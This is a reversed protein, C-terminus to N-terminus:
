HALRMRAALVKALREMAVTLHDEDYYVFCLRMCNAFTGDVSFVVGPRFSVGAEVAQASLDRTDLWPPLELWIYYGGAPYTVRVEDPLTRSLVSVAHQRRQEYVARVRVLFQDQLGARIAAEVIAGTM